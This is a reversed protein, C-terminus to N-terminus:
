AGPLPGAFLAAVARRNPGNAVDRGEATFLYELRVAYASSIKGRVMKLTTNLLRNQETFPEDLVGIASPLWRDPFLGSAEGGSRFNAIERELLRLAPEASDAGSPLPLHHRTLWAGIADRNPVVLAVTSPSQNNYLMVQDIFPSHGVIYEEIGEPSYKEGDHGILLSKERGLVFLFGDGDV